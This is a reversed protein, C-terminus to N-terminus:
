SSVTERQDMEELSLSFFFVLKHSGLRNQLPLQNSPRQRIRLHRRLAFARFM